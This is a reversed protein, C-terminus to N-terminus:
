FFQCDGTEEHSQEPIHTARSRGALATRTEELLAVGLAKSTSSKETIERPESLAQQVAALDRLLQSIRDLGQLDRLTDQAIEYRKGNFTDKNISRLLKGIAVQIHDCDCALEKLLNSTNLAINQGMSNGEAADQKATM